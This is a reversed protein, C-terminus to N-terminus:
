DPDRPALAVEPDERVTGPEAEAESGLLPRRQPRRETRGRRQGARAPGRLRVEPEPRARSFPEARESFRNRSRSFLEPGRQCM